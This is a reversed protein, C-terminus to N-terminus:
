RFAYCNGRASINELIDRAQEETPIVPHIYTDTYEMVGKAIENLGDYPIGLKELSLKLGIKELFSATESSLAMAANEDPANNLDPNFLRAVISFRKICSKWTFDLVAPYVVALSEGHSVKPYRGSISQGISHFLTTGVNANSFGAMTDAYAMMHRAERNNINEKLLPLNRIIIEITNLAISDIMMSNNAHIYSEFAHSFADFGTTMTLYEPMTYMLEPDVISAKPFINASCVASKRSLASNNIVAGQTLQSGSGSTTSITIVPLVRNSPQAESSVIYDWVSGPHTAGVSIAKASDLSSGGGMGIIVDAKEARAIKAGEDIIDTTPNPCVKDFVIIDINEAEVLKITKEFHPRQAEIWPTTVLMAKKGYASVIKGIENIRGEGFYLKVPMYMNFNRNTEM